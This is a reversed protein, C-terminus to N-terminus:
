GPAVSGEPTAEFYGPDPATEPMRDSETLPYNDPRRRHCPSEGEDLLRAPQHERRVIRPTPARSARFGRALTASRASAGRPPDTVVRLVGAQPDGHPDFTTQARLGFAVALLGVTLVMGSITRV